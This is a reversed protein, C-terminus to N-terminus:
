DECPEDEQEGPYAHMACDIESDLDQEILLSRHSDRPVLDQRPTDFAVDRLWRYRRADTAMQVHNDINFETEQNVNEGERAIQNVHDNDASAAQAKEALIRDYIEQRHVAIGEPAEIGLRVQGGTIALVTVSIDDNIRITEGIRRTLILM